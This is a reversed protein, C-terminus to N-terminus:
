EFRQWVRITEALEMAEKRSWSEADSRVFIVRSDNVRM